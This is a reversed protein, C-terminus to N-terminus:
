FNINVTVVDAYAGPPAPQSGFIRGYIPFAEATGTAASIRAAPSSSGWVTTRESNQYLAYGLEASAGRMSRMADGAGSTLTITYPTGKSCTVTVLSQADRAAAGSVYNGFDLPSATVSGCAMVVTVSVTLQASIRDAFCPGCGAAFAVAGWLMGQRM